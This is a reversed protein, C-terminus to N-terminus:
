HTMYNRDQLFLAPSQPDSLTSFNMYKKIFDGFKEGPEMIDKIATCLNVEFLWTKGPDELIEAASKLQNFSLTKLIKCTDKRLDTIDSKQISGLFANLFEIQLHNERLQIQLQSVYNTLRSSEDDFQSFNKGSLPLQIASELAGDMKQNLDQHTKEVESLLNQIQPAVDIAFSSPSVSTVSAFFGLAIILRKKFFFVKEMSTYFAPATGILFLKLPNPGATQTM